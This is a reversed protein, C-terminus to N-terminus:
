SVFRANIHSVFISQPVIESAQVFAEAKEGSLCIIAGYNRALSLHREKLFFVIISGFLNNPFRSSM